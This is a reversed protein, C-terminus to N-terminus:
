FSSFFNNKTVYSCRVQTFVYSFVQYLILFHSVTDYLLVIQANKKPKVFGSTLRLLIHSKYLTLNSKITERQYSM